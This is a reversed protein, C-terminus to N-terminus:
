YIRSKMKASIRLVNDFAVLALLVAVSAFARKSTLYPIRALEMFALVCIPYFILGAGGGRRYSRFLFFSAAGCFFAVVVLGTRGFDYEYCFIGSTNNFEINMDTALSAYLQDSRFGTMTAGDVFPLGPFRWFWELAFYPMRSPPLADLLYAGNNLATGYYGGIRNAGYDVASRELGAERKAELSRGAEAVIFFGILALVAIVPVFWLLMRFAVSRWRAILAPLLAVAFPVVVEILALREARLFARLFAAIVIAIFIVRVAASNQRFWLLGALVAAAMGMQTFTTIGPITEAKARIRMVASADGRLAGIADDFGVGQQASYVAWVLSGMLTLGGCVFFVGRMWDGRALLGPFDEDDAYGARAAHQKWFWCVLMGAAFAAIAYTISLLNEADYVKPTHWESEFVSAPLLYTVLGPLGLCCVVLFFPHLWYPTTSVPALEATADVAHSAAYDPNPYVSAM